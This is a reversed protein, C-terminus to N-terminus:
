TELSKTHIQPGEYDEIVGAMYSMSLDNLAAEPEELVGRETVDRCSNSGGTLAAM